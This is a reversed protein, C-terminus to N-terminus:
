FGVYLEVDLDLDFSVPTMTLTAAPGLSVTHRILGGGPAANTPV